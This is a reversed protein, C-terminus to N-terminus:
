STLECVSKPCTTVSWTPGSTYVSPPSATLEGTPRHYPQPRNKENQKRRMGKSKKKRYKATKGKGYDAACFAKENSATRPTTARSGDFGILVWGDHRWFRGGVEEALAQHRQRLRSSFIDAYTDLATMFSAYTKAINKAGLEECVELTQDFADTVNKAEQWSWILAEAALQEPEWKINGHFREEAFLEGKPVLWELVERFITKNRQKQQEGRQKDQRRRRNSQKRRAM